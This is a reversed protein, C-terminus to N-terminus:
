ARTDPRRLRLFAAPPEDPLRPLESYGDLLAAVPPYLVRLRQFDSRVGELGRIVELTTHALALQM